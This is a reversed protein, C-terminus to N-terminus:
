KTSIKVWKDQKKQYKTKVAKWAIRHSIEEQRPNDKYQKFASNFAKMYITQASKPLNEKVKDPLDETKNYPM